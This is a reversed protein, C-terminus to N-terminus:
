RVFIQYPFPTAENYPIPPIYEENRQNVAMLIKLVASELQNGLAQLNRKRESESRSSPIVRVDITWSEWCVDEEARSFWAKRVKKEYFELALSPAQEGGGAGTGAGGGEVSAPSRLLSNVYAAAREEVVDEVADDDVSPLTLDLLEHTKPTVQGFIRHFLIAHLVAKAVAKVYSLECSGVTIQLGDAADM